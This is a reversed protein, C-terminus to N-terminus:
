RRDRDSGLVRQMAALGEATGAAAPKYEPPRAWGLLAGAALQLPRWRLREGVWELGRFVGYYAAGLGLSVAGAATTSDVPIGLWGTGTLVLAVGYPVLTRMYSAFLNTM